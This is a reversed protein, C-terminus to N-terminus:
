HPRVFSDNFILADPWQSQFEALSLNEVQLREPCNAQVYALAEPWRTRSIWVAGHPGWVAEFAMGDNATPTQISLRDYVDIATHDRTHSIGDGCYDARAMRTCAQHFDQMPYGQVTSQPHYGWLVCKGIVGSTCAFTIEDNNIYTGSSDWQGPLAIARTDGEANPNCLAQWNQESDQYAVTYLMTEYGSATLLSEAGLIQVIHPAGQVPTTTILSGVELSSSLHSQDALTPVGLSCSGILIPLWVSCKM